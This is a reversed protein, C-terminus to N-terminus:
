LCPGVDPLYAHSGRGDLVDFLAFLLPPPGRGYSVGVQISSRRRHRLPVHRLSLSSRHLSPRSDTSSSKHAPTQSLTMCLEFWNSPFLSILSFLLFLESLLLHLFFATTYPILLCVVQQLNLVLQIFLRNLITGMYTYTQCSVKINKKKLWREILWDILWQCRFNNESM